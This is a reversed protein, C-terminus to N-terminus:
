PREGIRRKIKGAQLEQNKLQNLKNQYGLVQDSLNHLGYQWISTNLQEIRDVLNVIEDTGNNLATLSNSIAELQGLITKQITIPLQTLKNKEIADTLISRAASLNIFSEELSVIGRNLDFGIEKCKSLAAIQAEETLRTLMEWIKIMSEEKGLRPRFQVGNVHSLWSKEGISDEELHRTSSPHCYRM